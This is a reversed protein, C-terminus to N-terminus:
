TSILERVLVVKMMIQSTRRKKVLEVLNLLMVIKRMKVNQVNLKMINAKVNKM